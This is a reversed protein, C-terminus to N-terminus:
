KAHKYTKKIFRSEIWLKFNQMNKRMQIQFANNGRNEKLFYKKKVFCAKFNQSMQFKDKHNRDNNM